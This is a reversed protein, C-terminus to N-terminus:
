FLPVFISFFIVLDLATTGLAIFLMPKYLVSRAKRVLNGKELPVLFPLIRSHKHPSVEKFVLGLHQAIILLHLSLLLNISHGM